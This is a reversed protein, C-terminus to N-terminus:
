FTLSLRLCRHPSFPKDCGGVQQTAELVKSSNEPDRSQSRYFSPSHPLILNDQVYEADHKVCLLYETGGYFALM